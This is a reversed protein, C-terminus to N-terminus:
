LPDRHFALDFLRCYKYKNYSWFPKDVCQKQKQLCSLGIWNRGKLDMGLTEIIKQLVSLHGMINEVSNESQDSSNIINQIFEIGATVVSEGTWFM